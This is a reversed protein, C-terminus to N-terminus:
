FRPKKKKTQKEGPKGFSNLIQAGEPCLDFPRKECQACQDLHSHFKKQIDELERINISQFMDEGEWPELDFRQSAM